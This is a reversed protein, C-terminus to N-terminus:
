NGKPNVPKIEKSDLPSELTKELVVIEFCNEKIRNFTDCQDTSIGGTTVKIAFSINVFKVGYCSVVQTNFTLDSVFCLCLQLFSLIALWSLWVNVRYFAPYNKWVNKKLAPKLVLCTSFSEFILITLVLYVSIHALLKNQFFCVGFVNGWIWRYGCATGGTDIPVPNVDGTHKLYKKTLPKIGSQPLDGSSPFRLGSWYEHRSFGMSLPAQHAVTWPTVFLWVRSLM